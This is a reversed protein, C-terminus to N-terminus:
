DLGKPKTEKIYKIGKRDYEDIRKQRAINERGNTALPIFIPKESSKKGFHERADKLKGLAPFNELKMNLQYKYPLKGEYAVQNTDIKIIFGEKILKPVVRKITSLSLKCYNAMSEYSLFDSTYQGYGVTKRIFMYYVEREYIDMDTYERSFRQVLIEKRFNNTDQTEM